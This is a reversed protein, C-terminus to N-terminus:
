ASATSYEAGGAGAFVVGIQREGGSVATGFVENIMEGSDPKETSGSLLV